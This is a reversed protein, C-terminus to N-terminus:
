SGGGPPEVASDTRLGGKKACFAMRGRWTEPGAAKMYGTLTSYTLPPPIEKPFLSVYVRSKMCSVYARRPPPGGYM